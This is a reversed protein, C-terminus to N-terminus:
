NVSFPIEQSYPTWERYAIVLIRHSGAAYDAGSIVLSGGTADVLEVGDIFWRYARYNGGTTSVTVTLSGSAPITLAGTNTIDVTVDNIGNDITVTGEVTGTNAPAAQVPGSAASTVSGTYGARTVTVKLFKGVDDVVPEYTRATAGPIDTGADAAANGRKWQYSLFGLGFLNDTNATLSYGVQASGTITVVGTLAEANGIVAVIATGSVTPNRTSAARVTLVQATENQDVTLTGDDAIDTGTGGGEVTWTVTQPPNHAGSVVATFQKDEGKGVEASAPSVTVSTVTIPLVTVTAEGYQNKDVTSTALVTLTSATEDQDVTLTGDAAISTGPV